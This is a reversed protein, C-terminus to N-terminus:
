TANLQLVWSGHKLQNQNHLMADYSKRDMWMRHIIKLWRQGLRRLADAHSRGKDRHHRYYIEAWACQTSYVYVPIVKTPSGELKSGRRGKWFQIFGLKSPSTANEICPDIFTYQFCVVINKTSRPM